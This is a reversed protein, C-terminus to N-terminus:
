HTGVVYTKMSFYSFIDISKSQFFFVKVLATYIIFIYMQKNKFM